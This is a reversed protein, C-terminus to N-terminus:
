GLTRSPIPPTSGAPFFLSRTVAVLSAVVTRRETSEWRWGKGREALEAAFDAAVRLGYQSAARSGVIAVGDERPLPKGAVYLQSPADPLDNIGSPWEESDPTIIRYDM